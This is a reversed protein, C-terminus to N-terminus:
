DITNGDDDRDDMEMEDMEDMEDMELMHSLDCKASGIRTAIANYFKSTSDKKLMIANLRRLMDGVKFFEDQSLTECDRYAKYYAPYLQRVMRPLLKRLRPDSVISHDVDKWQIAIRSVDTCALKNNGELCTTLLLQAIAEAGGLLYLPDPGLTLVERLLGDTLPKFHEKAHQNVVFKDVKIKFNNMVMQNVVTPNAKLVSIEKDKLIIQQNLEQVLLELDSNIQTVKDLGITLERVDQRLRDETSTHLAKSRQKCKAVHRKMNSSRLFEEGCWECPYTNAAHIGRKALCAGTEQHKPLYAVGVSKNCYECVVKAMEVM